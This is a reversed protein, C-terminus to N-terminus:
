PWDDVTEKAGGDHSGTLGRGAEDASAVNAAVAFPDTAEESAHLPDDGDGRPIVAGIHAMLRVPGCTRNKNSIPIIPLCM